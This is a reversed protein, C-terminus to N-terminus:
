EWNGTNNNPQKVDGVKLGPYKDMKKQKDNLNAIEQADLGTLFVSNAVRVEFLPVAIKSPTIFTITDIEFPVNAYPVMGLENINFNKKSHLITDKVAVIITDRKVLGKAVAISDDMSGIQRLVKIKGNNYFDKLADFSNTFKGNAVKYAVQLTRIDKLKDVVVDKRKKYERDFRIPRLISDALFYGLFVIVVLLLLQVIRKM